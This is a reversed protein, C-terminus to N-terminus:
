DEEPRLELAASNICFRQGTPAPGDPFVHGLHSDCRACTVETRMMGLSADPELRLARLDSPETFSPWGSGSDFKADSSFLPEGCGVCLYRGATKTDHYRGTFARETGKQRTIRYQEPTLLKRWEEDTRAIRDDDGPPQVM